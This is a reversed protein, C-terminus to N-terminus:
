RRLEIRYSSCRHLVIPTGAFSCYTTTPVFKRHSCRITVRYCDVSLFRALYTWKIEVHYKASVNEFRLVQGQMSLETGDPARVSRPGLDAWACVGRPGVLVLRASPYRPPASLSCVVALLLLMFLIWIPWSARRSAWSWRVTSSVNSFAYDTCDTQRAADNSTMAVDLRTKRSRTM